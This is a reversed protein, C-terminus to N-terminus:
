KCQLDLIKCLNELRQEVISWNINEFITDLYKARDTGFDMFYAHEYVDVVLLPVACWLAGVDHADAGIVRLRKTVSDVAVIAWGRASLSVQKLYDMFYKSGCFQEDILKSLKSDPSSKCNGDCSINEFYLEHLKVGNLAFTEGLKLSRMDSYTPNSSPYADSDKTAQSIQNVKAVYGKYLKLHEEVQKETLGKIDTAKFTKAEIDKYM